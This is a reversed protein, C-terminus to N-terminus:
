LIKKKFWAWMSKKIKQSNKITKIEKNNELYKIQKDIANVEKEDLNFLSILITACLNKKCIQKEEEKTITNQIVNCVYKTLEPDLRLEELNKIEKIINTVDDVLKNQKIHLAITNKFNVLDTM